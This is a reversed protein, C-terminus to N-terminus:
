LQQFLVVITQDCSRCAKGASNGLIQHFFIVLCGLVIRQPQSIDEARFMEIQFQLIMTKLLLLSHVLTNHANGTFRTKGHDNGVIGVIKALFIGLHLIHQQANLGALGHIVFVPHLEAGIFKIQLTFFLQLFQKGIYRFSKFIGAANRIHAVQFKSEMLIMQGAERHRFTVGVFFIEALKAIIAKRLTIGIGRLVIYVSQLILDGGDALHSIHVVIQDNPIKDVIRFLLANGHAWATTGASSRDNCIAHVDCFHIGHLIRQNEFTEQVRFTDAHGVKIRVEALFATALDNLIHHAFVTSVTHRLDCGKTGHCGTAGDTVHTSRQVKGIGFGIGNCFQHRGRKMDGQFFRQFDAGLQLFQIIAILPHFLQDIHRTGQLTHGSVCGGM